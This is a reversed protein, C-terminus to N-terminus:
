RILKNGAYEHAMEEAERVKEYLDDIDIRLEELIKKPRLQEKEMPVNIYQHAILYLLKQETNCIRMPDYYGLVFKINSALRHDLNESVVINFNCGNLEWYIREIEQRYIMKEYSREFGKYKRSNPNFTDNSPKVSYIDCKRQADKYIVKFDSTFIIDNPIKRRGLKEIIMNVQEMDLPIQEQIEAVEPNWRLIYYLESEVSSMTHIYRNQRQDPIMSATATSRAENAKFFPIYDSGTGTGRGEKIKNRNLKMLKEQRVTGM